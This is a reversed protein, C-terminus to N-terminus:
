PNMPAIQRRRASKARGAAAIASDAADSAVGAGARPWVACVIVNAARLPLVKPFGGNETLAVAEDPRVTPNEESVAGTQVTLPVVTVMTVAPVQM